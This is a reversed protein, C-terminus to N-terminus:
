VLCIMFSNMRFVFTPLVIFKIFYVCWLLLAIMTLLSHTDKNMPYVYMSIHKCLLKNGQLIKNMFLDKLPISFSWSYYFNSFENNISIHMNCLRLLIKTILDCFSFFFFYYFIFYISVIYCCNLLLIFLSM